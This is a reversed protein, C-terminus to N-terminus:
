ASKIAEGFDQLANGVGFRHLEAQEFLDEGTKGMETATAELDDTRQVSAEVDTVKGGFLEQADLIVKIAENLPARFFERNEAVRYGRREMATHVYQEARSCDEFYADFALIFPTPVGTAASLERTREKPDGTTKGIKVLGEISPNILVYIHGGNPM